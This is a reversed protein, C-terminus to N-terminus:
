FKAIIRADAVNKFVVGMLDISANTVGTEVHFGSRLVYVQIFKGMKM